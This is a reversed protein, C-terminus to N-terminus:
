QLSDDSLDSILLKILICNKFIQKSMVVGFSLGGPWLRGSHLEDRIGLRQFFSGCKIRRGLEETLEM